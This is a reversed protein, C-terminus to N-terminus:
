NGDNFMIDISITDGTRLQLEDFAAPIYDAVVQFRQHLISDINAASDLQLILRKDSNRAATKSRRYVLLAILAIFVVIIPISIAIALNSQSENTHTVISSTSTPALKVNTSSVVFSSKSPTVKALSNQMCFSAFAPDQLCKDTCTNQLTWRDTSPLCSLFFSDVCAYTDVSHSCVSGIQIDPM